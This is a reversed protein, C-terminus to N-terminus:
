AFQENLIVERYAKRFREASFATQAYAYAKSSVGPLEERHTTLYRLREVADNILVAEDTANPLLYGNECTRIHEPIADIAPVLPIAGFAMAEMIVLPFGEFASTMLLIDHSRHFAYIAEGGQLEGVYTGDDILNQPLESAFSGALHFEIPLSLERCHRIIEVLLHIRKQHGGRGAYYVRLPLSFHRPTAKEPIYELRYVIKKFRQTYKEPIGMTKYLDAFKEIFVDGVLIRTDIFQIFPGWVWNFKPDVMHILEHIAINRQLHPTLKYGFNCQGIFVTPKKKQRNIYASCIGRFILNGWYMWKNDTWRSIDRWAVHPLQFFHLMGQNASHKTFFVMVKKDDLCKLIEANVREAGGITYGPFFLFVDYEQKLPSFRAILNGILIFPFMIIQEIYRKITFLTYMGNAINVYNFAKKIQFANIKPKFSM